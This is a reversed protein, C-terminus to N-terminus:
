QLHESGLRRENITGSAPDSADQAVPFARLVRKGPRPSRELSPERRTGARPRGFYTIVPYSCQPPFNTAFFGGVNVTIPVSGRGFGNAGGAVRPGAPRLNHNLM